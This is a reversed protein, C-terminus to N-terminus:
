YENVMGFSMVYNLVTNMCITICGPFFFRPSQCFFLLFFEKISNNCCFGSCVESLVSAHVFGSGTCVMCSGKSSFWVCCLCSSTFFIIPEYFVGLLFCSIIFGLVEYVRYIYIRLCCMVKRNRPLSSNGQFSPFGAFFGNVPFFLFRFRVAQFFSPFGPVSGLSVRLDCLRFFPQCKIFSSPRVLIGKM